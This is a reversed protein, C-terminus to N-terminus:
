KIFIPVLGIVFGLVGGIITIANLEKKTVSVILNEITAMDFSNIKNEIMESVAVNDLLKDGQKEIFKQILKFIKEKYKQLNIKNLVINININLLKNKNNKVYNEIIDYAKTSINNKLIQKIKENLNLKFNDNILNEINDFIKFKNIYKILNEETYNYKIINQTNESLTEYIENLKKNQYVSIFEFIKLGIIHQNKEDLLYKIISNKISTYIKDPNVFLGALTGLNEEIINKIFLKLKQEWNEDNNIKDCLYLCVKPINEFLSIKINSINENDIIDSLALTSINQKLKDSNLFDVLFQQTKDKTLNGQLFQLINKTILDAVLQQNKDDFIFYKAKDLCIKEIKNIADIKDNNYVKTLINDITYNQEKIREFSHEVLTYIKEQNKECFLNEKITEKNLINQETTIAIKQAIKKREKPILGPTFPIKFKGIYKPEYPLFLMKIALWNTFYGIGAGLIPSVIYDIM